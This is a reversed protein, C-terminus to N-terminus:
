VSARQLQAFRHGNEVLSLESAAVDAIFTRRALANAVHRAYVARMFDMQEQTAGPWQLNAGPIEDELQLEFLEEGAAAAESNMPLQNAM